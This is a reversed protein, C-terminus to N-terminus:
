LTGLIDGLQSAKERITKGANIILEQASYSGDSEITFIFASEDESVTIANIDCVGECIKCLSCKLLDEESVEAGGPGLHIIEKPCEAICEGCEDCGTVTVVPMNKYGCAVGAQWKAHDKGYGVHALAELVVKHGEKLKIIPVNEDAPKVNQDAPVLDGSYVTVPGEASLTISLQCAPCFDECTCEDQPVYDELNATLPILGLRLALQEDYLVSTNNYINVEDIALTPVDALMARRVGNAFAATTNSLVFKADRESIELIDIEMTMYEM